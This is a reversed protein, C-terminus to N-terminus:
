SKKSNKLKLVERFLHAIDSEDLAPVAGNQAFECENSCLIPKCSPSLAANVYDAEIIKPINDYIMLESIAGDSQIYARYGIARGCRELLERYHETESQTQDDM